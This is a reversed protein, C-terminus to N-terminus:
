FSPTPPWIVSPTPCGTPERPNLTALPSSFLTGVDQHVGFASKKAVPCSMVYDVLKALPATAVACCKDAGGYYVLLNDGIVVNGCPFVVNPILGTTEYDEEPELIPKPTRALVRRPDELDLMLAGVRYHYDDTVGHYLLLWGKDTKIPPANAGIKKSEWDYMPEALLYDHGWSLVDRSLGIWISPKTCRYGYGCWAEPRHLLVFNGGVKEPFLIADRDDVSAPTIPGMRHWTLFDKTLALGSRSINERAASPASAPLSPNHDTLKFKKTWYAGPRFKRTAYTVFYTDDFKVVRPDEVCGSDFGDRSPYFVPAEFMREFHYGDVSEALGFFVPHDDTNPGARYLLRVRGNECWAAPNTACASEWWSGECPSLIPNGEFKTLKM